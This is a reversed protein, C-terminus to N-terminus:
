LDPYYEKLCDKLSIEWDRMINLNLDDLRKNILRESDPREAFYEKSFFGSTVEQIKIKDRLGLLKVLERAVELRGTLGGCVMNFLGRQEEEILLKTNCAFDHTYTPTGLKDNVIHLTKSGGKIQSIIKQIFKKDKKPGGGMMWGARCILYNDYNEQVFIEGLYKSRGYHGLPKPKDTEDYTDKAGGFIGATSVYLLPIHLSKSIKVANEVSSTNTEYAEEINLECFELDTHAGLHFLWDPNFDRVEKLYADYDRFDLYELWDENIDIDSCRLSYIDKFEKYFALGLMGGCGAIYIKKM